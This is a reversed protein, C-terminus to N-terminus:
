QSCMICVEAYMLCAEEEKSGWGFKKKLNNTMSLLFFVTM